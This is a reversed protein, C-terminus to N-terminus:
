NLQFQFLSESSIISKCMKLIPVTEYSAISVVELFDNIDEEKIRVITRNTIINLDLLIEKKKREQWGDMEILFNLFAGRNFVIEINDYHLFFKGNDAENLITKNKRAITIRRNISM